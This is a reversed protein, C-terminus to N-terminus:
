RTRNDYIVKMSNLVEKKMLPHLAATTVLDVEKGLTKELDDKIRVMDFLSAQATPSFEVLLDYDSNEKAENKSRSGFIAAFIIHQRQFIDILKQQPLDLVQPM